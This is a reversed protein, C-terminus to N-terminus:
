LLGRMSRDFYATVVRNPNARWNYIVRLVRGEREPVKGLFHLVRVDRKDGQIVEPKAIVREVWEEAIKGERSCKLPM